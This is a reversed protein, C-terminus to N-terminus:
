YYAELQKLIEIFENKAELPVEGKCRWINGCADFVAKKDIYYAWFLAQARGYSCPPPLPPSSRTEDICSVIITSECLPKGDHLFVPVKKYIPNSNLLLESKGGFLDKPRAEYQLGKENLAIKVRM